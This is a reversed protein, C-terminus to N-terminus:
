AHGVTAVNPQVLPMTQVNGGTDPDFMAAVRVAELADAKMALAGMAYDAGSGIAFFQMPMPTPGSGTDVVVRGDPWARLYRYEGPEIPAEKGDEMAKLARLCLGSDGAFGVLSGDKLRHVKVTNMRHFSCQSDAAMNMGDWVITTM